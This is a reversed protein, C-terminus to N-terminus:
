REAKVVIRLAVDGVFRPSALSLPGGPHRIPETRAVEGTKTDIWDAQYAGKPLDLELAADFPTGLTRGSPIDPKAALREHVYIAYARGEQSLASVALEPKVGRIVDADPRM